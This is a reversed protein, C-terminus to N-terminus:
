TEGGQSASTVCFFYLKMPWQHSYSCENHLPIYQDAPYETSTFIKGRVETRPTSREQYDLLTPSIAMGFQEFESVTAVDFGRFLVAGYKLLEAEILDRNGKAWAVLDVSEANPQMVLPFTEGTQLYGTRVLGGQPIQVARRKVGTLKKG